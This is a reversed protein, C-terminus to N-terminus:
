DREFESEGSEHLNILLKDFLTVNSARSIVLIDNTLTANDLETQTVGSLLQVLNVKVISTFNDAFNLTDTIAIHLKFDENIVVNIRKVTGTTNTYNGTLYFLPSSVADAKFSKIELTVNDFIGPQLNIGGTVSSLNFLDVTVPGTWEFKTRGSSGDSATGASANENHGSNSGGDSGSGSHDSGSTGDAESKHTELEKAGELEIKSVVMLCTDWDFSSGTLNDAASVALARPVSQIKSTAQIKFNVAPNLMGGQSKNCSSLTIGTILVLGSLLNITKM